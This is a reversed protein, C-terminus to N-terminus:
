SRQYDTHLRSIETRLAVSRELGEKNTQEVQKEFAQIREGLPKLIAEINVKNQDTFRKSKEELLDNALNKFQFTLKEQILIVEQKQETLQEVLNSNITELKAVQTHLLLEQAQFKAIATKEEGAQQQAADLQLQLAQTSVIRQNNALYWGVMGGLACSILIYALLL